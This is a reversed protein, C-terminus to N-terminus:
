LSHLPIYSWYLYRVMFQDLLGKNNRVAHHEAVYKRFEGVAVVNGANWGDEVAMKEDEAQKQVTLKVVHEVRGVSNTAVLKYVGGENLSVSPINLSGDEVITQASNLCIERNDQYWILDPVPKGSVSVQFIVNEGVTAHTDTPFEEIAPM